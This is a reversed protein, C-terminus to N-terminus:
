AADEQKEIAILEQVRSNLHYQIITLKILTDDRISDYDLSSLADALATAYGSVVEVYTSDPLLEQYQLLERKDQKTTTVNQDAM